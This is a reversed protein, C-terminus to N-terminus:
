EESSLRYLLEQDLFPTLEPANETLWFKLSSTIKEIQERNQEVPLLEATKSLPGVDIQIAEGDVFGYNTRILPDNDSIAHRWKWFFLAVLSSLAHKAEEINGQSLYDKLAPYVLTAKKQILFGTLNPDIEHCIHLPDLISLKSPLNSTPSLHTYLLGTKDRMEDFAIEYSKFTKLLKDQFYEAQSSAWPGMFPFHSLLSFLKIKTQYRNNFLKLVYKEDESAFVFSQLGRGIYHFKQKFLTAIFEREEVSIGRGGSVYGCSFRNFAEIKSDFPPTLTSNLMSGARQNSFQSSKIRNEQTRNLHFPYIEAPHVETLLNDRIKSLRFGKTAHHCFRAIGIAAIVCLLVIGVKKFKLKINM